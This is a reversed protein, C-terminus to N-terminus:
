VEKKLYLVTSKGLIPNLLRNLFRTLPPQQMIDWILIRHYLNVSWSDTRQPGVLCKLWWFPAHLSHAYHRSWLNLGASQLDEILQPTKFIRIHGRETEYYENSLAWCIREPWYRPVSVILNRGPKLVRVIENIAQIYNEVHELVESCIVLDFCDDKYPLNIIDGATLRWAGGGHEGLRDHLNLRKVAETLDKFNLDTGVIYVEPLRYAAAIHRGSGCGIDLIKFGAEIRLRDFDVTVM